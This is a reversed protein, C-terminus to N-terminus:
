RGVDNGSHRMIHPKFDYRNLVKLAKELLEKIGGRPGSAARMMEPADLSVKAGKHGAPGPLALFLPIGGQLGTAVFDVFWPQRITKLPNGILTLSVGVSSQLHDPIDTELEAFVGSKDPRWDESFIEFQRWGCFYSVCVDPRADYIACGAECHRCTAGAAKQIQPNDIAPVTCCVTCEGCTRAPVPEAVLNLM